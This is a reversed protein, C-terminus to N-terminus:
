SELIDLLQLILNSTDTNDVGSAKQKLRRANLADILVRLEFRTLKIRHVMTYRKKM